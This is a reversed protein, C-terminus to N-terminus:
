MFVVAAGLGCGVLVGLVDAVVVGGIGANRTRYHARVEDGHMFAWFSLGVLIGIGAGILRSGGEEEMASGIAGFIRDAFGYGYSFLLIYWCGKAPWFCAVATAASILGMTVTAAVVAALSVEDAQFLEDIDAFMTVLGVLLLTILFFGLSWLINIVGLFYLLGPKRGRGDGSGTSRVDESAYQNLMQDSSATTAYPNTQQGPRVVAQVPQMDGDTLEDFIDPDLGLGGGGGSAQPQPPRQTPQAPRQQPRAQQPQPTTPRQQPAQAAGARASGGPARLQKGCPCKVVKGAASEPVNLVSSCGPCKIKM